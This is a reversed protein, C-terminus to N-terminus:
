ADEGLLARAREGIALARKVEDETRVQPADRLLLVFLWHADRALEDVLDLLRPVDGAWWYGSTRNLWGRTAYSNRNDVYRRLRELDARTLQDSPMTM